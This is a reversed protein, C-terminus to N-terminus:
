AQCLGQAAVNVRILIQQWDDHQLAEKPVEAVACQGDGTGLLKRLETATKEARRQGGEVLIIPSRQLNWGLEVLSEGERGLYNTPGNDGGIQLLGRVAEHRELYGEAGKTGEFVGINTLDADVIIIKPEWGIVGLWVKMGAFLPDHHRDALNEMVNKYRLCTLIPRAPM